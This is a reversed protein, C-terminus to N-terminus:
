QIRCPVNSKFFWTSRTITAAGRVLLKGSCGEMVIVYIGFFCM